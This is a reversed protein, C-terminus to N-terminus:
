LIRELQRFSTVPGARFRCRIWDHFQLPEM